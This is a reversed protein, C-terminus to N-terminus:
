NKQVKLDEKIWAAVLKDLKALDIPKSLYDSFGNELFMERMGSIASATLAIIPVTKGCELKRIAATAEVGDMGPMMHDMFVFDYSNSKVLVIAEEGSICTDIKMKYPELLKKIVTLNVKSDDVALVRADPAIFGINRKGADHRAAEVEKAQLEFSREDAIIQPIVATFVSGEGYISRVTIEGGMMRCLNQSISLGLGTGEIGQNKQSDVQSFSDFLKGIDESRIGIGTDAVEFSLLIEGQKESTGSVTLTISGENTYKVANSLLNLLIQRVRVMDGRLKGPLRANVNTIFELPKEALRFRIINEVDHILSSFMYDANVLDMKGAEIKSFDLIDNIISLLSIGAQKINWVSDAADSPLDRQLLVESLGIIANMPTRIEHSMRALFVSKARSAEVALRTQSQLEATRQRVMEQLATENQRHRAIRKRHSSVKRMIFVLLTLLVVVSVGALRLSLVQRRERGSVLHIWRAQIASKETPTIASFVKNLISRLEPWDDRVGMHWGNNNESDFTIYNLNPLGLNRISYLVSPLYGLMVTERGDAVALVAEEESEYLSLGAHLYSFAFDANSTNGQVALTKGRFDYIDGIDSDERVVFALKYEYYLQSLLFDKEREETWGLTPLLDLEYSKVKKQADAYSVGVAPEFRLGTKASVLALYDPAIGTYKGHSDLFEFPAFLPDIGVRIVPHERIFNKEAETLDLASDQASIGARPVILLLAAALLCCLLWGGKRWNEYAM